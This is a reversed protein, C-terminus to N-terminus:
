ADGHGYAKRTMVIKSGLEEDFEWMGLEREYFAKGVVPTTVLLARRMAPLKQLVGKCCAILWKGLGYRRYEPMIYVDTLYATTVHDTILRALGIQKLGELEQLRPSLTPSPTRPSSPEDSTAAPPVPPDVRYLGLTISQSLMTSMQDSPLPRAWEMDDSAFATNIFDHDLMDPKTCVVYTEHDVDRRWELSNMDPQAM